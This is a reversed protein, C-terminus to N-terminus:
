KFYTYIKIAIFLLTSIIMLGTVFYRHAKPKLRRLMKDTWAAKNGTQNGLYWWDLDRKRNFIGSFWYLWNAFFMFSSVIIAPIFSWQLFLAFHYISLICFPAIILNRKLHSFNKGDHYSTNLDWHLRVFGTMIGVLLATLINYIM